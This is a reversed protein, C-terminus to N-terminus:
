ASSKHPSDVPSSIVACQVVLAGLWHDRAVPFWQHGATEDCVPGNIDDMVSHCIVNCYCLRLKMLKGSVQIKATQEVVRKCLFSLLYWVDAEIALLIWQSCISVGCVPGAIRFGKILCWREVLLTFFMLWVVFNRVIWRQYPFAGTLLPNVACLFWCYLFCLDHLEMSIVGTNTPM